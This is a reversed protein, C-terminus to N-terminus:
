CKVRVRNRVIFPSTAQGSACLERLVLRTRAAGPCLRRLLVLDDCFVTTAGRVAVPAEQRRCGGVVHITQPRAISLCCESTHMSYPSSHSRPRSKSTIEDEMAESQEHISQCSDEVRIHICLNICPYCLKRRRMPRTNGADLGDQRDIMVRHLRCLWRVGCVAALVRVPRAGRARDVLVAAV